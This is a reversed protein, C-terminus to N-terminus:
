KEWLIHGCRALGEKTKLTLHLRVRLLNKYKEVNKKTRVQSGFYAVVIKRTIDM